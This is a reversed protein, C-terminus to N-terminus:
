FSLPMTDSKGQAVGEQFFAMKCWLIANKQNTKEVVTYASSAEEIKSFQFFHCM